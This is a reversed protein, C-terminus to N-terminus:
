LGDSYITHMSLSFFKGANSEFICDKVHTDCVVAIGVLKLSSGTVASNNVFSCQELTIVGPTSATDGSTIVGATNNLFTCNYCDM